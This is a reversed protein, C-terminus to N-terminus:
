YSTLVLLFLCRETVYGVRGYGNMGKGQALIKKIEVYGLSSLVHCHARAEAWTKRASLYKYCLCTHPFYTWGAACGGGRHRRGPCRTNRRGGGQIQNINATQDEDGNQNITAKQARNMNNHGGEETEILFYKQHSLGVSSLLVFLLTVVRRSLM